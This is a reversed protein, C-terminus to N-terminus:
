PSTQTLSIIKLMEFDFLNKHEGNQRFFNNMIQQVPLNNLSWHPMREKRDNYLDVCRNDLYSRCIKEIDPTSIWISGDDALVRKMEAFLPIIEDELYLHEIVHQSAIASFSNDTWPLFAKTIDLDCDPQGLDVNIWGKV